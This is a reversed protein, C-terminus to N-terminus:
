LPPLNSGVTPGLDVGGALLYQRFVDLAKIVDKRTLSKGTDMRLEMDKGTTSSGSSAAEPSDLKGRDIGLYWSAV